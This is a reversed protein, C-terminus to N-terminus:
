CHWHVHHQDSQWVKKLLEIQGNAAEEQPTVVPQLGANLYKKKWEEYTMSEPVEINNGDKDQRGAENGETPTDPLVSCGHMPLVSPVAAHEKRGGSGSVFYIKGDLKGCAAPRVTWRPWFRM